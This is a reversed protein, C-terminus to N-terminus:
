QQKKEEQYFMRGDQVCSVVFRLPFITNKQRLVKRCKSNAVKSNFMTVSNPGLGLQVRILNKSEEDSEEM